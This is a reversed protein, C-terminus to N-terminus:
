FFIIGGFRKKFAFSELKKKEFSIIVNMFKLAREQSTLHTWVTKFSEVTPYNFRSTIQDTQLFFFVQSDITKLFFTTVPYDEELHGPEVLRVTIDGDGPPSRRPRTNTLHLESASNM